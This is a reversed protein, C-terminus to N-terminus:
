KYHKREGGRVRDRQKKLGASQNGTAGVPRQIGDGISNREDYNM